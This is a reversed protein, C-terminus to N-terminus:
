FEHFGWDNPSMMGLSLPRWLGMGAGRSARMIGRRSGRLLPLSLRSGILNTAHNDIVKHDAGTGKSGSRTHHSDEICFPCVYHSEM